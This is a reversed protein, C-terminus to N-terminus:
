GMSSESLEKRLMELLSGLNALYSDRATKGASVPVLESYIPPNLWAGTGTGAGLGEMSRSLLEYQRQPSCRLWEEFLEEHDALLRHQLIALYALKGIGSPVQSLGRLCAGRAEDIQRSLACEWIGAASGEASRAPRGCSRQM